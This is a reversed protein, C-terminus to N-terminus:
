RRGRRARPLLTLIAGLLVLGATGPEPVFIMGAEAPDYGPPFRTGADYISRFFLTFVIYAILALLIILSWISARKM